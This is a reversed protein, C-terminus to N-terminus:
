QGRLLGHCRVCQTEIQTVRFPRHEFTALATNWIEQDWTETDGGARGVESIAQKWLLQSEGETTQKMRKFAAELSIMAHTLESVDSVSKLPAKSPPPRRQSLSNRLSAYSNDFECRDLLEAVDESKADSWALFLGAVAPGRIRGHQCHVYVPKPLFEWARSLLAAETSDIANYGIPVHVVTLEARSAAAVKPPSGDVSLISRYGSKALRDYDAQEHLSPGVGISESARVVQISNMGQLQNSHEEAILRDANAWHTFVALLLANLGFAPVLAAFRELFRTSRHSIRRTM